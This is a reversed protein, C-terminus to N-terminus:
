ALLLPIIERIFKVGWAITVLGLISSMVKEGTNGLLAHIKHAYWFLLGTVVLVIAIALGTLFTSYDHSTIIITTISAPGALVPTGIISAIAPASSGNMKDESTISKGLTMNIGLIVLIIGGAIKFDQITTSFIELLSEGFLLVFFSISGAVFVSLLAIKHRDIHSKDKTTSVFVTLSALPDFIVLFLVILQILINIELIM